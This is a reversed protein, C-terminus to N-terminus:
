FYVFVYEVFAQTICTRYAVTVATSGHVNIRIFCASFSYTILTVCVMRLVCYRHDMACLSAGRENAMLQMMQQLRVNCGVGGVILM